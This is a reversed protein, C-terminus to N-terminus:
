SRARAGSRASSRRSAEASFPADSRMQRLGAEDFGSDIVIYGDAFVIQYAGHTMPQPTRLSEGAFVAGRPLSAEAVQEHNVRLPKEGPISSALQRLEATDLTYDSSTEPM